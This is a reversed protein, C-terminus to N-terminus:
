CRHSSKSHPSHETQAPQYWAEFKPLLPSPIVVVSCSSGMICTRCSMACAHTRGVIKSQTLPM